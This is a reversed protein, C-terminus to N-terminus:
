IANLKVAQLDQIIFIRLKKSHKNNCMLKQVVESKEFMSIVLFEGPEFLIIMQPSGISDAL